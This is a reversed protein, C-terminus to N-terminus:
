SKSIKVEEELLRSIIPVSPYLRLTEKIIRELYKMETLDAITPQRDSNGFIGKLEQYAKEQIDPHSGLELLAWCLAASTTDHGEFMFTDVEERIEEETMKNQTESIEILLDLFSIKKKKGVDDVYELRSNKAKEQKQKYAEKREKIVRNTFGHLTNLVKRHERGTPTLEFIWNWHMYPTLMRIQFLKSMKLTAKVYDKEGGRQADVVTGM